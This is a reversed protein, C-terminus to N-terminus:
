LSISHLIEVGKNTLLSIHGENEFFTLKSHPFLTAYIEAHKAPAQKDLNGQWVTVPCALKITNLNFGWPKFTLQMEQSPGAVGQRFTEMMMTALVEISGLSQLALKDVEPMQKLGYKLLRPRKFMILTLRMMATAVWPLAKIARNLLRQGRSLSSTAEPIEFPGM